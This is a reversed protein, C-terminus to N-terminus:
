ATGLDLSTAPCLHVIWRMRKGGVSGTGCPGQHASLPLALPSRLRGIRRRRKSTDTSHSVPAVPSSSNGFAMHRCGALVNSTGLTNIGYFHDWPGWIGAVAAVHFVIEVGQCAESVAASDRIDGQQSEVGLRDLQPYKGRGFARVQDGRSVLQEVIYQGLFGGAGTVLAKM